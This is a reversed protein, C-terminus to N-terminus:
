IQFKFLDNKSYNINFYEKKLIPYKNGYKKERSKRLYLEFPSDNIINKVNNYIYLKYLFKCSNIAYQLNIDNKIQYFNSLSCGIKNLSIIFFISTSLLTIIFFFKIYRM